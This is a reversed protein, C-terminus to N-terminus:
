NNAAEYIEMAESGDLLLRLQTEPLEIASTMLVENRRLPM